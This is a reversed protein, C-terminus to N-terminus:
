SIIKLIYSSWRTMEQLEQQYLSQVMNFDLQALELLLQNPQGNKDYKEIYYRAELTHMRQHYPLELVHSVHERLKTDLGSQLANQLHTTSFAKAEDLVSEGEFGLHSAEYLSLLGVVDYRLETKFKGKKDMFNKFVEVIYNM